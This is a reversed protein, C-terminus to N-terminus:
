QEDNCMNVESETDCPVVGDILTWSTLVTRQVCELTVEGKGKAGSVHVGATSEIRGSNLDTETTDFIAYVYGQNEFAVDTADLGPRFYHFFRFKKPSGKPNSPYELEISGPKGFRYIVYANKPDSKLTKPACLAVHKGSRKIQCSFVTEDTLGCISQTTSHSVTSLVVVTAALIFRLGHIFTNPM